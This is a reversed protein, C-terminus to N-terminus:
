ADKTRSGEYTELYELWNQRDLYVGLTGNDADRGTMVHLRTAATEAYVGGLGLCDLLDTLQVNANAAIYNVAEFTETFSSDPNRIVMKAQDFKM